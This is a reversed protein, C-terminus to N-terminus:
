IVECWWKECVNDQTALQINAGINKSQVEIGDVWLKADGSTHDRLVPIVPISTIIIIFKILTDFLKLKM